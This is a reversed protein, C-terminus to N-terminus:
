APSDKGTYEDVRDWPFRARVFDRGRSTAKYLKDPIAEVGPANEVSILRDDVLDALEADIETQTYRVRGTTFGEYIHSALCGVDPCGMFVNNLLRLIAERIARSRVVAPNM